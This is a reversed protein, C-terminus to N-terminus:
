CGPPPLSPASPPGRPPPWQRLPSPGILIGARDLPLCRPCLGESACGLAAQCRCLRSTTPRILSPMLPRSSSWSPPPRGPPPPSCGAPPLSYPPSLHPGPFGPHQLLHPLLPWGLTFSSPRSLPLPSPTFCLPLPLPETTDHVSLGGPEETWPIRCALISSHTAMGEELPDEGGLSRVQTERM